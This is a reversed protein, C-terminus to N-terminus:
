EDKYHVKLLANSLAGLWKQIRETKSCGCEKFFLFLFGYGGCFCFLLLLTCFGFDSSNTFSFFFSYGTSLASWSLLFLMCVMHKTRQGSAGDGRWLLEQAGAAPQNLSWTIKSTTHKHSAEEYFVHHKGSGTGDTHWQEHRLFHLSTCYVM